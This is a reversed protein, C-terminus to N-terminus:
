SAADAHHKMEVRMLALGLLAEATLDRFIDDSPLLDLVARRLTVRKQLHGEAQAPRTKRFASAMYKHFKCVKEHTMVLPGAYRIEGPFSTNLKTWAMVATLAM